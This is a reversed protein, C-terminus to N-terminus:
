LIILPNETTTPLPVMEKIESLYDTLIRLKEELETIKKDRRKIAERHLRQNEKISELLENTM